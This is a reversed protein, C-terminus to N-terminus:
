GVWRFTVEVNSLLLNRYSVFKWGVDLEGDIYAKWKRNDLLMGASVVDTRILSEKAGKAGEPVVPEKKRKAM